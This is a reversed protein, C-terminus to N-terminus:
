HVGIVTAVDRDLLQLLGQDVGVPGCEIVLGAEHHYVHKILGLCAADVDVAERGQPLEDLLPLVEELLEVSVARAGDAVCLQLLSQGLHAVVQAGLEALEQDGAVARAGGVGGHLQVAEDLHAGLQLHQGLGEPLLVCGHLAVHPEAELVEDGHCRGPHESWGMTSLPAGQPM